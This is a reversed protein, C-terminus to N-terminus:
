GLDIIVLRVGQEFYQRLINNALFSKGEGTPAYIAFNRAKIRKKEEDWVDKLVPTNQNRSNFIIGTEDSKYNSNNIFLCLAHKLDTVYLDYDSFNSSFCFYSNLFYNKRE